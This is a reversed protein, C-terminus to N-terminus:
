RRLTMHLVPYPRGEGDTESRGTIAFGKHEYFGVAQDNQENVDVTRVDQDAVVHNLLAGGIGQGRADADIFLMVLDNEATGAFGVARGDVEAVTLRVQPFYVGALNSEIETRDAATLFHHTADVASRWIQVLRPYELPGSGQRLHIVPWM